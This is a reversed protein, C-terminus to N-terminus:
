QQSLSSMASFVTRIDYEGLHACDERALNIDSEGSARIFAPSRRNWGEPPNFRALAITECAMTMFKGYFNTGRSSPSVPLMSLAAAYTLDQLPDINHGSLDNHIKTKYNNFRIAHFFEHTVSNLSFSISDLAESYTGALVLDLNRMVRESFYIDTQFKSSVALAMAEPNERRNKEPFYCHIIVRTQRLNNKWVSELQPNISTVQSLNAFILFKIGQKQLETTEECDLNIETGPGRLFENFRQM